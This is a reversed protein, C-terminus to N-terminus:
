RGNWGQCPRFFSLHPVVHFLEQMGEHCPYYGVSIHIPLAYPACYPACPSDGQPTQPHLESASCLRALTPTTPEFGM